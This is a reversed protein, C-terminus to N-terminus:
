LAQSLDTPDLKRFLRQLTSQHPTSGHALGLTPLLDPSQAAAWEAIALVSLHNCLLAAVALTLVAALPFRTGQRRRPDPVRAFAALLDPSAPAPAPSAVGATVAAQLTALAPPIARFQM